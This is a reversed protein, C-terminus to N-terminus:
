VVAFYRELDVVVALEKWDVTLALSEMLVVFPGM